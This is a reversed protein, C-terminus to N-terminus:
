WSTQNSQNSLRFNETCETFPNEKKSDIQKCTKFRGFQDELDVQKKVFEQGIGLRSCFFVVGGGSFNSQSAMLSSKILFGGVNIILTKQFFDLKRYLLLLNNNESNPNEIKKKKQKFVFFFCSECELKELSLVSM